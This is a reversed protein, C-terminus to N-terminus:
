DEEATGFEGTYEESSPDVEDEDDRSHRYESNCYFCDDTCDFLGPFNNQIPCDASTYVTGEPLVDDDNVYEDYYYCAYSDDFLIYYKSMDLSRGDVNRIETLADYHTQKEYADGYFIGVYFDATRKPMLSDPVTIIECFKIEDENKYSLQLGSYLLSNPLIVSKLNICGEFVNPYIKVLNALNVDELKECVEFVYPGLNKVKSLDITELKKCESFAKYKICEVSEPIFVKGLNSCKSFARQGITTIGNEIYIHVISDRFEKWPTNAIYLDDVEYDSMEGTGRIILIGGGYEWTANTGCIGSKEVTIDPIEFVSSSEDSDAVDTIDLEFANKGELERGSDSGDSAGCATTGMFVSMVLLWLVAKKKM